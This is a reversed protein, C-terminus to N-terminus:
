QIEELKEAKKKLNQHYISHNVDLSEFQKQMKKIQKKYEDGKIMFFNTQVAKNQLDPSEIRSEEDFKKLEKNLSTAKFLVNNTNSYLDATYKQEIRKNEIIKNKVSSIHQLSLLLSTNSTDKVELSNCLSALSSLNNLAAQSLYYKNLGVKELISGVHKSEASYENSKQTLDEIIISSCYDKERNLMM